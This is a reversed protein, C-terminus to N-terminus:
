SRGTATRHDGTVESLFGPDQFYDDNVAGLHESVMEM